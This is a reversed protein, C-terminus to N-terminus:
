GLDFEQTAGVDDELSGGLELQHAVVLTGEAYAFQPGVDRFDSCAEGYVRRLALDYVDAGFETEVHLFVADGFNVDEHAFEEEFALVAIGFQGELFQLPLVGMGILNSRHIREYSEAIVSRVGLLYTGKAAWDRSSGMGYDKGALVVLPIRRKQYAVAADYISVVDGHAPDIDSDYTM